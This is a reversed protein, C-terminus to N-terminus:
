RTFYRHKLIATDECNSKLM